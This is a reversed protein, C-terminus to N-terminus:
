NIKIRTIVTSIITNITITYYLQILLIITNITITYYLLICIKKDGSQTSLVKLKGTVM